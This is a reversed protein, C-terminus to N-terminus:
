NYDVSKRDIAHATNVRDLLDEPDLVAGGAGHPVANRPDNLEQWENVSEGPFLLLAALISLPFFIYGAVFCIVCILLLWMTM